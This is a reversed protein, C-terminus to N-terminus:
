FSLPTLSELWLWPAVSREAAVCQGRQSGPVVTVDLWPSAGRLAEENVLPVRGPPSWSWSEPNGTEMSAMYGGGRQSETMETATYSVEVWM